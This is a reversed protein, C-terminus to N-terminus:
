ESPSVWTKSPGAEEESETCVFTCHEVRATDNPHSRHYYCGPLKEQNLQVLAGQAVAESTLLHREAESGDCWFIRDPKCRAAMEQVWASVHPNRTNCEGLRRM